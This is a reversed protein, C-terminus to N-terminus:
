GRKENLKNTSSKCNDEKSENNRSKTGENKDNKDSKERKRHMHKDRKETANREERRYFERREEGCLNIDV